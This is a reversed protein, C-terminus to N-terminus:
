RGIDDHRRPDPAVLPEAPRLRGALGGRGQRASPPAMEDRAFGLLEAALAERVYSLAHREQLRALPHFAVAGLTAHFTVELAVRGAPGLGLNAAAAWVLAMSLGGLALLVAMFAWWQWTAMLRSNANRWARRFIPRAADSSLARLLDFEWGPKTGWPEVLSRWPKWM